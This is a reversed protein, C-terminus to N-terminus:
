AERSDDLAAEERDPPSALPWAQDDAWLAAREAPSLPRKQEEEHELWRCALEVVRPIRVSKRDKGRTHGSEFDALRSPHMGLHGGLTKLSWGLRQRFALFEQPTM